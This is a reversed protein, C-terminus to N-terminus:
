LFHQNTRDITLYIKQDRSFYLGYIWQAIVACDMQFSAFFRKLRKYRSDLLASSAFAAAIERLNVTRVSILALLTGALCFLRAKNWKFYGNLSKVLENLSDM